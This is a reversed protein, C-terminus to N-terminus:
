KRGIKQGGGRHAMYIGEPDKGPLFNTILQACLVVPSDYFYQAFKIAFFARRINEGAMKLFSIQDLEDVDNCFQM